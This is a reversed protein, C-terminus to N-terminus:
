EFCSDATILIFITIYSIQAVNNVPSSYKFCITKSATQSEIGFYHGLHHSFSSCVSLVLFCLIMM